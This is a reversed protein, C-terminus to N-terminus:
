KLPSFPAPILLKSEMVQLLPDAKQLFAQWGPDALAARRAEARHNADRYGWLHVVTNLPGIETSWIGVPSSYKERGPVAERFHALWAPAKGPHSRYIRLEYVGMGATPRFPFWDVPNLIMNEQTQLLPASVPLYEKVWREDQALGARAATRAALDAFEWLHVIQNLAGLETSWYGLLKGFRDGRIPRSLSGAKELYEGVKDPHVTYLRLEHIM